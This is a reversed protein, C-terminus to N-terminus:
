IRNGALISIKSACLKGIAQVIPANHACLKSFAVKQGWCQTIIYVAGAHSVHSHRSLCYRGFRSALATTLLLEVSSSM